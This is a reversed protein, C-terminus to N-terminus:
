KSILFLSEQWSLLMDNDGSASMAKTVRKTVHGGDINKMCLNRARPLSSCISFVPLQSTRDLSSHLLGKQSAHDLGVRLMRVAGDPGGLGDSLINMGSPLLM